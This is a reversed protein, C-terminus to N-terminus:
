GDYFWEEFLRQTRLWVGVMNEPIPSRKNCTQFCFKDLSASKKKKVKGYPNDAFGIGAQDM